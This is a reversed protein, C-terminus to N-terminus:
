QLAPLLTWQIFLPLLLPGLACSVEGIEAFWQANREPGRDYRGQRLFWEDYESARERYYEIQQRLLDDLPMTM